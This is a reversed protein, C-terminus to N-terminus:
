EVSGLAQLVGEGAYATAGVANVAFHQAPLAAQLHQPVEREYDAHETQVHLM